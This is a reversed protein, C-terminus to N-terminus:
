TGRQSTATPNREVAALFYDFQHALFAMQSALRHSDPVLIVTAQRARALGTVDAAPCLEDNWGHVITTPVNAADFPQAYGDIRLPVAMLFLALPPRRLSALGSVFAGMSSGVLLTPAEDVAAAAALREVRPAICAILGRADLDRYDMRTARWGRCEALAALASVKTGDPGSELGHSLVVHGKM